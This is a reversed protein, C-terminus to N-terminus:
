FSNLIIRAIELDETTTIKINNYNGQEVKINYGLRELLIADDYGVFNDKIAKEYAEMLINYKFGQPTQIALLEDRKLTSTIFGKENCIKITDKVPVGLVCGDNKYASYIVKQIYSEEIFPRVGDHILVIDTNSNVNKLGNYVSNQREKGGAVVNITQFFNNKYIIENKCYEIYEDSVVLIIDDIESCKDFCELTYELITKNGIKMFQKSIDGGMRVGKGAAVIIASCYLKKTNNM